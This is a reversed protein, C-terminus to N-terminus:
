RDEKERELATEQRDEEERIKRIRRDDIALFVLFAVIVLLISIEIIITGM